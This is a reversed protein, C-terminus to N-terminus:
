PDRREGRHRDADLQGQRRFAGTCDLAMEPLYSTRMMMLAFTVARPRQSAARLSAGPRALM